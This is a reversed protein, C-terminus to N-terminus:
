SQPLLDTDCVPEGGKRHLTLLDHDRNYLCGSHREIYLAQKSDFLAFSLGDEGEADSGIQVTSPVRAAPQQTLFLIALMASLGVAVAGILTLEFRKEKIWSM